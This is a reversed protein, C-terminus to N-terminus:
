EPFPDSIAALPWRGVVEALGERVPNHLVYQSTALLDEYGRIGRDYFSRQWLKGQWGLAWCQYTTHSKFDRLIGILNFGENPRLVMHLHDPMLCYAFLTFQGREQRALLNDAVCRAHRQDSFPTLGRRARIIVHYPQTWDSYDLEKLRASRRAGM